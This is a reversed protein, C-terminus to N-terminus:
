NEVVTGKFNKGALYNELNGLKRGNMIIVELGSEDALRSAIPDFPANLGPNWKDGVIKRFDTWNIEKVPKANKNKKPDGTYVYNINSLNIVTKIKYERALATAVYDTSWGPKWGGAIFIKEKGAMHVMPNKIIEPHAIDYFITRLLHANLRTSHIGLWDRDEDSVKVVKDAAAVYHRCTIGGGAIIFFKNGRKIESIILKRFGKLFKWDIGEPPVILSGGLSVVYTKEKNM